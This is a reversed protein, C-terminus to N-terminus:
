AAVEQRVSRIAKRAFMVCGAWVGAAVLLLVIGLPRLFLEVYAASTSAQWVFILPPIALLALTPKQGAIASDVQAHLQFRQEVIEQLTELQPRLDAGSRVARDFNIALFEIDRNDAHRKAFVGIVATIPVGRREAANVLERLEPGLPAEMEAATEVLALGPTAGSSLHAIMAGLIEPVQEEIQKRKKKAGRGLFWGFGAVAAVAAFPALIGRGLAISGIFGAVGFALAARSALAPNAAFLPIGSDHAARWWWNGWKSSPPAMGAVAGEVETAGEKRMDDLLASVRSPRPALWGLWVGYAGAAFAAMLLLLTM